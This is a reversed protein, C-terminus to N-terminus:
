RAAEAIQQLLRPTVDVYGRRIIPKLDDPTVGLRPLAALISPWRQDASGIRQKDTQETRARGGAPPRHRAAIKRAWAAFAAPPYIANKGWPSAQWSRRLADIRWGMPALEANLEALVKDWTLRPPRERAFISKNLYDIKKRTPSRQERERPAPASPTAPGAPGRDATAPLVPRYRTGTPRGKARLRTITLLGADVALKVHDAVGRNSLGTEAMIQRVTIECGDRSRMHRALTLCILKTLPKAASAAVHATWRNVAKLDATSTNRSGNYGDRHLTNM